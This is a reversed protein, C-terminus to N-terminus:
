EYAARAIALADAYELERPNFAHAADNIATAAIAELKSKAVGAQKLTIPMGCEANLARNIERVAEVARVARNKEPTSLYVEPGALPLLLEAYLDAVKSMNYEMGHPLFIANAVGHPVHCVGGTAHAMSHVVGVMANSFAAGALLSANAMGFRAKEDKGNKVAKVLNERVLNIAAVAYADSLPNRQKCSYAEVAHTLADVGTAATIKPPMTLTMRPDLVAMNPLLYQSTFPMKIQRKPNAIVAVSTVESGTGATTPVVILPKLPAKLVDAGLYDLLDDGGETVLINVAKATDLVSGGGVAVISDCRNERYLRAVDSVVENSSDPPTDECVAGVEADSGAFGNIVIQLLGAGVVGQDTVILPRRASLLSLEYPINDVAKNGALVKVPNYFEYYSPIM